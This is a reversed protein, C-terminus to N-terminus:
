VAGGCGGCFRWQPELKVGCSTCFRRPSSSAPAAVRAAVPSAGTEPVSIPAVPKVIGVATSELRAPTGTDVDAVRYYSPSVDPKKNYSTEDIEAKKANKKEKFHQQYCVHHWTEGEALRKEAAYVTKGCRPCKTM